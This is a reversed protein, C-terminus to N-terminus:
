LLGIKWKELRTGHIRQFHQSQKTAESRAIVSPWMVTDNRVQGWPASEFFRGAIEFAVISTMEVAGALRQVIESPQCSFRYQM